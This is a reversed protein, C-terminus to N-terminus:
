PVAKQPGPALWSIFRVIESAETSASCGSWRNLSDNGYLLIGTHNSRVADAAPDPHIFGLTRRLMEMTEPTGTLFTWGPRVGHKEAYRKLVQPSDHEPELTLSYIFIDKGLRDGLLDQVQLLNATMPPCLDGCDAFFFNILVVKGRILDDYFLVKRGEHTVVEVNPLRSGIVSKRAVTAASTAQSFLALGPAAAVLMGILQRRTLKRM